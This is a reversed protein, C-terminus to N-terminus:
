VLRYLLDEPRVLLRNSPVGPADHAWSFVAPVTEAWPVSRQGFTNTVHEVLELTALTNAKGFLADLLHGLLKSTTLHLSRVSSHIMYKM